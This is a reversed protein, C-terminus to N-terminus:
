IESSVIQMTSHFFLEARSIIISSQDKGPFMKCNEVYASYMISVM